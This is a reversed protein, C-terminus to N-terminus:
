KVSYQCISFIGSGILSASLGLGRQGKRFIHNNIIESLGDLRSMHNNANKAVRKAQLIQVGNQAYANAQLLINPDVCNDADLLLCVDMENAYNDLYYRISKSKNRQTDAPIEVVEVLLKRLQTLTELAFSDALVVVKFLHTPYNINLLSQVSELIVFDEKYAPIL